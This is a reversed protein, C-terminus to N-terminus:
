AKNLKFRRSMYLILIGSIEVRFIREYELDMVSSIQAATDTTVYDLSHFGNFFESLTAGSEGISSNFFNFSTKSRPIIM